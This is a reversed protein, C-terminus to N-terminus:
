RHSQPDRGRTLLFEVANFVDPNNVNRETFTAEQEGPVNQYRQAAGSMLTDIKQQIASREAPSVKPLEARLSSVLNVGEQGLQAPINSGGKFGEAKQVAHQLEHFLSAKIRNLTPAGALFITNSNPNYAAEGPKGAMVDLKIDKLQPYQKFLEPHDVVDGVTKNINVFKNGEHEIFGSKRIMAPTDDVITRLLKDASGSFIKTKSFLESASQGAKEGAAFKEMASGTRMAVPLGVIMATKAASAPNILGTIFETVSQTTPVTASNGLGFMSNIHESGGIPRADFGELGKGTVAGLVLNSLDVPAGVINGPTRQVGKVISSLISEEAM